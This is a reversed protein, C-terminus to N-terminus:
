FSSRYKCKGYDDRSHVKWCFMDKCCNGPHGHNATCSGYEPVCCNTSPCSGCHCPTTKSLTHTAFLLLLLLPLLRSHM